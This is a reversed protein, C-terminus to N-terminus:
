KGEDPAYKEFLYSLQDHFGWGMNYTDTVVRRLRDKFDYFLNHKSMYKLAREYMSEMSCYFPEDIDGFTDTCIVGAEVYSLMLDALNYHSCSIKKYDSIAKRAVSLRM